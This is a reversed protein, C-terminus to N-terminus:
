GFVAVTCHAIAHYACCYRMASGLDGGGGSPVGTASLVGDALQRSVGPVHLGCRRSDM